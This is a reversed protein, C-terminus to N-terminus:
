DKNLEIKRRIKKFGKIVLSQLSDDFFEKETPYYDWRSKINLSVINSKYQVFPPNDTKNRVIWLKVAGEKWDLPISFDIKQETWTEVSVQGYDSMLADEPNTRWGFNFGELVVEEGVVPKVPTVKVISTSEKIHRQKLAYEYSKLIVAAIALIFILMMLVIGSGLFINKKAIHFQPIKFKVNIAPQVKEKELNLPKNKILIDKYFKYQTFNGLSKYLETITPLIFIFLVFFIVVEVPYTGTFFNLSSAFFHAFFLSTLIYIFKEDNNIDIIRRLEIRKQMVKFLICVTQTLLTIGLYVSLQQNSLAFITENLPIHLEPILFRLLFAALLYLQFIGSVSSLVIIITEAFLTFYLGSKNEVRLM